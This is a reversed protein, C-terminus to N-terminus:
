FRNIEQVDCVEFDEKLLSKFSQDNTNCDKLVELNFLPNLRASQRSPTTLLDMNSYIDM